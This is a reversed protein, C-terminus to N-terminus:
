TDGEEIGHKCILEPTFLTFVLGFVILLALMEIVYVLFYAVFFFRIYIHSNRYCVLIVFLIINTLQTFVTFWNLSFSRLAFVLEVLAFVGALVVM